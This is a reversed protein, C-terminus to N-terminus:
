GCLFLCQVGQDRECAQSWVAWCGLVCARMTFGDGGGGAASTAHVASGVVGEAEHRGVVGGRGSQDSM